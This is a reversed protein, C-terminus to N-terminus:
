SHEESESLDKHRYRDGTIFNWGELQLCITFLENDKGVNGLFLVKKKEKKMALFVTLSNEFFLLIYITSKYTDVPSIVFSHRSFVFGDFQLNGM